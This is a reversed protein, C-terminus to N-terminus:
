EYELVIMGNVMRPEFWTSKPPLVEDDDALHMLEELQVPYLCFAARNASKNTKQILPQLGKAGGVYSIRNDERVNKIGLVKDFVLENLLQADLVDHPRPYQQLIEEKWTLRYWQNKFLLSLEHKQTPKCVQDEVTLHCCTQLQSILDLEEDLKIVRNYDLIEIEDSPFFACLLHGYKPPNDQHARATTVARHHGDAIYTDKVQQHFIHQVFQIDDPNTVAWIHHQMNDSALDLQIIPAQLSKQHEMWSRIDPQAPYTLTIPKVAAQRKHLLFLQREEKSAITNEHKKIHGEQFSRIPTQAIIGTYSRGPKIIQYIYIAQHATKKFLGAENFESYVEKVDSFFDDKDTIQDLDPLAAQFPEIIM